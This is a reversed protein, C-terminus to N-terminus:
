AQRRRRGLLALGGLGLLALSAPEPVITLTDIHTDTYDTFVLQDITQGAGVTVEAWDGDPATLEYSWVSSGNLMGSVTPNPDDSSWQSKFVWLSPVEIDNSFDIFWGDGEGDEHGYPSNEPTHAPGDYLHINTFTVETGDGLTVTPVAPEDSADMDDFDIVEAQTQAGFGLALAM